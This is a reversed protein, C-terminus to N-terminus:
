AAMETIRLKGSTKTGTAKPGTNPGGQSVTTTTISVVGVFLGSSSYMRGDHRDRAVIQLDVGLAAAIDAVTNAEWNPTSNFWRSVQSKNVGLKDALQQLAFGCPEKKRESIVAWFLSVLESRLMGRDYERDFETKSTDTMKM